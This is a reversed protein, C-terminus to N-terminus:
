FRLAILLEPFVVSWARLQRGVLADSPGGLNQDAKSARRCAM